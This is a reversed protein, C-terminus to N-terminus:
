LFGVFELKHAVFELVAAKPCLTCLLNSTYFFYIKLGELSNQFIHNSNKYTM